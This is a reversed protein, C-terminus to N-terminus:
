ILCRKCWRGFFDLSRTFWGLRSGQSSKWIECIKWHRKIIIEDRILRPWGENSRHNNSIWHNQGFFFISQSKKLICWSTGLFRGILVQEMYIIKFKRIKKATYYVASNKFITLLRVKLLLSDLVLFLTRDFWRSILNWIEWFFFNKPITNGRIRDISGPKQM